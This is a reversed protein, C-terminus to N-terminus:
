ERAERLGSRPAAEVFKVPLFSSLPSGNREEEVRVIYYHIMGPFKLIRDRESKSFLIEHHNKGIVQVSARNLTRNSSSHFSSYELNKLIGDLKIFSYFEIPLIFMSTNDTTACCISEM